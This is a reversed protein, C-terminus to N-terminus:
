RHWTPTSSHYLIYIYKINGIFFKARLPNFTLYVLPIRLDSKVSFHLFWFYSLHISPCAPPYFSPIISFAMRICSWSNTSLFFPYCSELVTISALQNHIGCPGMAYHIVIQFICALWYITCSFLVPAKFVNLGLHFAAMKCVINELESEHIFMTTNQNLNRQFKNGLNQNVILPCQNM